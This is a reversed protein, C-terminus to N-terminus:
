IDQDITSYNPSFIGNAQKNFNDANGQNADAEDPGDDVGEKVEGGKENFFTFYYPNKKEGKEDNGIGDKHEQSLM